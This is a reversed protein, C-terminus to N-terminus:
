LMHSTTDYIHLVPWSFIPLIVTYNTAIVSENKFIALYFSNTKVEM